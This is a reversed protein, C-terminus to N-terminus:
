FNVGTKKKSSFLDIKGDYFNPKTLIVGKVGSKMHKRPGNQAISPYDEAGSGSGSKSDEGAKESVRDMPGLKEEEPVHFRSKQQTKKSAGPGLGLLSGMGSGQSINSMHSLDVNPGIRKGPSDFDESDIM